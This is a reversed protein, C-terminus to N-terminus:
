SLMSEKDEKKEPNEWWKGREKKRWVGFAFKLGNRGSCSFTGETWLSHLVSFSDRAEIRSRERERV